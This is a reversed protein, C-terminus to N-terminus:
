PLILVRHASVIYPGITGNVAMRASVTSRHSQLAKACEMIGDYRRVFERTELDFLFVPKLVHKEAGILAMLDLAEQSRHDTILPLVCCVLPSSTLYWGGRFLNGSDLSSSITASNALARRAFFKISPLVLVLVSFCNYVYLAGASRSWSIQDISNDTHSQGYFANLEGTNSESIKKKTEDSQTSGLRQNRLLEKTKDSHPVGQSSGGGLSVNYYPKLLSIWHVERDNLMPADVYEIIILAYNSWGHKLLGRVIPSNCNKHDLLFSQNLYNNIRGLVNISQGVYFHSPDSLLVLMYIAGISGNKKRHDKRFEARNEFLNPYLKVPKIGGLMATLGASMQYIATTSEYSETTV